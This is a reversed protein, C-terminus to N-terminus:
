MLYSYHVTVSIREHGLAKACQRLAERDLRKSTGRCYYIERRSLTAVDRACSEYLRKCYEARYRHIDCHRSIGNPFVKNDGAAQCMKVVLEVDGVIPVMRPKGGKTASTHTLDIYWKGNDDSVLWSGRMATLEARRGGVSKAFEVVDAHKVEDWHRNVVLRQRSRTINVHNRQPTKIWETTKCQFLKGLASAATKITYPSLNVDIMSQLYEDVFAKADPLRKVESHREKLWECYRHCQQQYTHYTNYSFIYQSAVGAKKAAHRSQSFNCMGQLADNVQMKLNKRRERAM